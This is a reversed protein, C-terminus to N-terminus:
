LLEKIALALTDAILFEGLNTLIIITLNDEPFYMLSTSFGEGSGPIWYRINAKSKEIFCGFGYNTNIPTIAQKGNNLKAPSWILQRSSLKLYKDSSWVISWKAMDEITALLEGDGYSLKGTFTPQRNLWKNNKYEYGAVRNHTIKTLNNIHICTFCVSQSCFKIKNEYPSM